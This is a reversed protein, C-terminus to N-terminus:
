YPLSGQLQKPDLKRGQTLGQQYTSCTLHMDYLRCRGSNFGRGLHQRTLLLKNMHPINTDKDSDTVELRTQIFLQWKLKEERIPELRARLKILSIYFRFVCQNVACLYFNRRYLTKQQVPWHCFSTQKSRLPGLTDNFRSQKLYRLSPRM